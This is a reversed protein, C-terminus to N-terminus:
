DAAHPHEIKRIQWSQVLYSSLGMAIITIGLPIGGDTRNGSLLATFLGYALLPAAIGLLLWLRSIIAGVLYTSGALICLGPGFATPPLHFRCAWITYLLCGLAFALSAWKGQADLGWYRRYERILSAPRGDDATTRRILFLLFGASLGATLIGTWQALTYGLFKAPRGALLLASASLLSGPLCWWLFLWRDRKMWQVWEPAPSLGIANQITDLDNRVRNLEHNM